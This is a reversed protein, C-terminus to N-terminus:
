VHIVSHGLHIKASCDTQADREATSCLVVIEKSIEPSNLCIINNMIVSAANATKIFNLKLIPPAQEWTFNRKQFEIVEVLLNQIFLCESVLELLLPPNVLWEIAVKLECGAMIIPALFNEQLDVQCILGKHISIAGSKLSKKILKYFTKTLM